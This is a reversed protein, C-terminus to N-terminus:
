NTQTANTARMLGDAFKQAHRADAAFKRQVRFSFLITAAGVNAIRAFTDFFTYFGAGKVACILCIDRLTDIVIQRFM